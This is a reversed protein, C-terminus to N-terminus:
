SSDFKSAGHDQWVLTGRNHLAPQPPPIPPAQLMNPFSVQVVDIRITATFFLNGQTSQLSSNLAGATQSGAATGASSGPLRGLPRNRADTLFLTLTSLRRQQLNMFYERDANAFYSTTEIGIPIKAFINSTLTQALYPGTADSLVATEVGNNQQACRLYVHQETSRQGPYFATLRLKTASAIECLFSSATSAADDIRNGGLLAYSDGVEGFCQVRFVTFGHGAGAFDLDFSIIRNSTANLATGTPPTIASPTCAVGSDTALQTALVNAFNAAVASIDKYNQFTLLLETAAVDNTLRFRSNNINVGYMNTYMSFDTLTLRLIQGNQCEISDAGLQLSFSDGKGAAGGVDKASDIFLNYSNVVDANRGQSHVQM